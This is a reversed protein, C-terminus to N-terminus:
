DQKRIPLVVTVMVPAGTKVALRYLTQPLPDDQTLLTKPDAGAKAEPATYVQGEGGELELREAPVAWAREWEEFTELKLTQAEEGVEVGAIPEPAVLITISESVQDPRARTVTLYEPNDSQAPIEVVRGAEVRNDGNNLRTTPFILVPASKSGDAYVERDVVYLHGARPSEIALRVFQGEVLPKGIDVREPTLAVKDNPNTAAPRHVLMRSGEGDSAVSPRLRWLTVGVLSDTVGAPTTGTPKTGTPRNTATPAPKYTRPKKKPAPQAPKPRKDVFETDWLQRTTDGPAQARVPLAVAAVLATVVFLMGLPRNRRTANLM